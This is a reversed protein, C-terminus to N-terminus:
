PAAEIVRSGFPEIADGVAVLELGAAAALPVDRETGNVTQMVLDVLLTPLDESGPREGLM